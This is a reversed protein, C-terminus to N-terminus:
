NLVRQEELSRGHDEHQMAELSRRQNQQQEQMINNEGQQSLPPAEHQAQQQQAEKQQRELEAQREMAVRQVQEQDAREREVRERELRQEETEQQQQQKQQEEQEKRHHEAWYQESNQQQNMYEPPAHQEKSNEHILPVPTAQKAAAAGFVQGDANEDVVELKWNDYIVVKQKEEQQVVFELAVVNADHPEQQVAFKHTPRAHLYFDQGDDIWPDSMPVWKSPDAVAGTATHPIWFLRIKRASRNVLHVLKEEQQDWNEQKQQNDNNEPPPEQTDGPKGRLRIQSHRFQFQSQSTDKPDMPPKNTDVINNDENTNTRPVPNATAKIREPNVVAIGGELSEGEEEGLPLIELKPEEKPTRGPFKMQKIDAIVEEHKNHQLLKQIVPDAPSYGWPALDVGHQDYYSSPDLHIGGTIDVMRNPQPPVVLHTTYVYGGGFGFAILTAAKFISQIIGYSSIRRRQKDNIDSGNSSNSMGPWCDDCKDDTNKRVPAPHNSPINNNNMHYSVTLQPNNGNLNRNSGNLNRNSGTKSAMLAMSQISTKGSRTPSRLTTITGRYPNPTGKGSYTRQPVGSRRAVHVVSRSTRPTQTPSPENNQNTHTTSRRSAMPMSRAPQLRPRARFHLPAAQGLLCHDVM